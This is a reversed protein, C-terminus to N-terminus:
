VIKSKSGWEKHCSLLLGTRTLKQLLYRSPPELKNKDDKKTYNNLTEDMILPIIINTMLTMKNTKILNYKDFNNSQFKSITCLLLNKKLLKM